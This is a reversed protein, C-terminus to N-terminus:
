NEAGRTKVAQNRETRLASEVGLYGTLIGDEYNFLPDRLLAPFDQPNRIDEPTLHPLVERALRLVKERQRSIMTNLLEQVAAPDM